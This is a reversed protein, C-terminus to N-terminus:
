VRNYIKDIFKIFEDRHNSVNKDEENSLSVELRSLLKNFDIEKKNIYKRKEAWIRLGHLTFSSKQYKDKLVFCISLLKDSFERDRFTLTGKRFENISSCYLSVLFGCPMSNNKFQNYLYSYNTYFNVNDKGYKYWAELYDTDKWTKQTNNLKAIDNIVDKKNKYEKVICKVADFRNKTKVIASILHQGDIIVKKNKDYMLVGIVPLRLLGCEELSEAMNDIHKTSIARNFPLLNKTLVLTKLQKKKFSVIKM